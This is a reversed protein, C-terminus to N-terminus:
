NIGVSLEVNILFCDTRITGFFTRQTGFDFSFGGSSTDPPQYFNSIGDIVTENLKM